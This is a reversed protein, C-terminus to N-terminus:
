ICNQIINSVGPSVDNQFDFINGRLNAIATHVHAKMAVCEASKLILSIIIIM